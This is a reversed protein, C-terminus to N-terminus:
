FRAKTMARRTKKGAQQLRSGNHQMAVLPILVEQHLGCNVPCDLVLM